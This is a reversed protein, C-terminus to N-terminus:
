IVIILKSDRAGIASVLDTRDVMSESFVDFNWTVTVKKAAIPTKRSPYSIEIM